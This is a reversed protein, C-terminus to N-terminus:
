LQQLNMDIVNPIGNKDTDMIQMNKTIKEGEQDREVKKELFTQMLVQERGEPTDVYEPEIAPSVTAARATVKEGQRLLRKDALSSSARVSATSGVLTIKIYNLVILKRCYFRFKFRGCIFFILTFVFTDSSILELHVPNNM